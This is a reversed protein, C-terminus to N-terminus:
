VNPCFTEEMYRQLSSEEYDPRDKTACLERAAKVYDLKTGDDYEPEPGFRKITERRWAEEDFSSATPKATVVSTSSPATTVEASSADTATPADARGGCACALVFMCVSAVFRM